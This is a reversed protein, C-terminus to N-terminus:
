SKLDQVKDNLSKFLYLQSAGAVDDSQTILQLLHPDRMIPKATM